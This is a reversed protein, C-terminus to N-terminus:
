RGKANYWLLLAVKLANEYAYLSWFHINCMKVCNLYMNKRGRFFSLLVLDM